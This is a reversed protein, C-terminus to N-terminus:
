KNRNTNQSIKNSILNIAETNKNVKIIVTNHVNELSLIQSKRRMDIEMLKDVILYFLLIISFVCIIIDVVGDGNKNHDKKSRDEESINFYYISMGIYILTNLFSIMIDKFVFSFIVCSLGFLISFFIGCGKQWNPDNDTLKKDAVRVHYIDYCFNYWFLVVLCSFTGKLFFNAWWNQSRLDTFVYIFIISILGALSIALGAKDTKYFDEFIDAEMGLEGLVSLIFGCLLPFFHFRTIPGLMGNMIAQDKKITSIFFVVCGILIIAFAFNFVIYNMIYYMQIPSHINADDGLFIYINWITRHKKSYLWNLSIWNNVAIAVWSIYSIILFPTNQGGGNSNPKEM